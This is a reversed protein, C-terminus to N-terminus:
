NCVLNAAGLPEFPPNQLAGLVVDLDWPPVSPRTRGATLRQAGRLISFILSCNDNNLMYKDGRVAKITAVMGQMTVASKGAELQTQLFLLIDQATASYTDVQHAGCWATFVGWRYLYAARTSPARAKQMTRVVPEPLGLVLLGDREPALGGVQAGGSLPLVSDWEGSVAPGELTPAGMANWGLSTSDSLVMAHPALSSGGSDAEGRGGSGKSPYAPSPHFSSLM